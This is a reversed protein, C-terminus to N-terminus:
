ITPGHSEERAPALIRVLARHDLVGGGIYILGLIGILAVLGSKGSPVVGWIPLMSFAVLGIAAAAYHERGGGTSERFAEMAGAWALGSLMVPPHVTADIIFAVTIAPYVVLWKIASRLQHRLPDGRVRGFHRDYYRGLVSMSLWLGVAVIPLGIWRRMAAPLGLDPWYAAACAVLAAGLPVLRLGQWFFFNDTVDHIRRLRDDTM